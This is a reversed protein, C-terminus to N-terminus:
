KLELGEENNIFDDSFILIGILAFSYICILYLFSTKLMSTGNMFLGKLVNILSESRKVVDILLIAYFVKWNM